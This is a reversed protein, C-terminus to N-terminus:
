LSSTNKERFNGFRRGQLFCLGIGVIRRRNLCNGIFGGNDKIDREHNRRLRRKLNLNREKRVSLERISINILPTVINMILIAFSVGEPMNSFKRILVTIIGLGLSYIIVGWFSNPSTAYDTAMFIAGLMLGGGLISPLFYTIDLEILSTLLGVTLIYILPIKYDIVRRVILYIGGIILALASVEGASGGTSGLFMNLLNLNATGESKIVALPTAGTVADYDSIGFYSFLSMGNSLDIPKVWTTLAATWALMVFIRATIAPNAFNKGLGGFLMKVVMIAFISGIVPIYLPVVPPLNLALLLGTVVASLDGTTQPKKTLYNYFWEAFVASAISIVAVILPYFGFVLIAALLAPLLAIIVDLMIRQTNASSKIHPSSSVTYNM